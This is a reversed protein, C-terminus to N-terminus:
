QNKLIAMLAKVNTIRTIDEGRCSDMDCVRPVRCGLGADYVYDQEGRVLIGEVVGTDSNFVASGSNGGFSDTNAVFFVDNDNRRVFAGDAIKVPLGTPHGIIVLPTQDEIRGETRVTLPTRDAVPRELRILAFDNKSFRSLDRAVIEKCRYVKSEDVAFETESQDATMKAFDFVWSNQSCDGESRICHGATIILDPAVLFGSCSASTMQQAFRADECIGRSKLVSGKIGVKGDNLNAELKYNPIMAATSAALRAHLPNITEFLDLRDDVGYVVKEKTHASFALLCMLGATM